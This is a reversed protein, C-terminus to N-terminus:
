LDSTDVQLSHERLSRCVRIPNGEVRESAAEECSFMESASRSAQGEREEESKSALLLVM